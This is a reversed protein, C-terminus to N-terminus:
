DRGAGGREKRRLSGLSPSAGGREKRLLSGLSPSPLARSSRLSRYLRPRVSSSVLAGFGTGSLFASLPIWILRDRICLLPFVAGSLTSPPLPWVKVVKLFYYSLSRCSQPLFARRSWRGQEEGYLFSM